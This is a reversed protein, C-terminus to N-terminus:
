LVISSVGVSLDGLQSRTNLVAPTGKYEPRRELFLDLQKMAAKHSEVSQICKLKGYEQHVLPMNFSMQFFQRQTCTELLKAMWESGFLEVERQRFMEVFYQRDEAYVDTDWSPLQESKYGPVSSIFLPFCVAVQLPVFQSIDWDIVGQLEFEDNSILNCPNLDQHALAYPAFEHEVVVHAPVQSMQILVHIANWRPNGDLARSLCRDLKSCFWSSTSPYEIGPTLFQTSCVSNDTPSKAHRQSSRYWLALLSAALGKLLRQRGDKPPFETSWGDLGHGSIWDVMM